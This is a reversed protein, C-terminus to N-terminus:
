FSIGTTAALSGPPAWVSACASRPQLAQAPCQGARNMATASILQFARGSPTLTGYAFGHISTHSLYRLVVPCSFGQRFRPPGGELAVYEDTVSLSGTGHPFPSFCAQRRTFYF